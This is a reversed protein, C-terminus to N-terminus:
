NASQPGRAKNSGKSRARRRIRKRSNRGAKVKAKASAVLEVAPVSRKKQEGYSQKQARHDQMDRLANERWERGAAKCVKQFVEPFAGSPDFKQKMSQYHRHDFMEYFEERTLFSDAYLMQFGRKRMVFAEVERGCEVANFPEKKLVARPIGYAGLDVYMEYHQGTVGM